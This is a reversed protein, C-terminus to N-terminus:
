VAELWLCYTRVTLTARSTALNVHWWGQREKSPSSWVRFCYRASLSTIFCCCSTAPYDETSILDSDALSSFHRSNSYVVLQELFLVESTKTQDSDSKEVMERNFSSANRTLCFEMLTSAIKWKHFSFTKRASAKSWPGSWHFWFKETEKGVNQPKLQARINSREQDLEQTVGCCNNIRKEVSKRHGWAEASDTPDSSGRGSGTNHKGAEECKKGIHSKKESFNMKVHVVTNNTWHTGVAVDKASYQPSITSYCLGLSVM